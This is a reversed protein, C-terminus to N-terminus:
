AIGDILDGAARQAIGISDVGGYFFGWCIADLIQAKTMGMAQSLLVGERIGDAFGRAVNMNLLAYAMMEKPLADRIAHEYRNRYAKLMGPRHRALFSVYDPVMGLKKEYWEVIRRVDEDSAEQNSFDAGSVFFDPDFGWEVPWREVPEPEVWQRLQPSAGSYVWRMGFPSGHIFGVALLDLLEAKTMGGERCLKVEYAIGEEYGMLVYNHLMAAGHLLPHDTEEASTTHRVGARYRKMVDPRFELWFELAPMSEGKIRNYYDRFVDIEEQTITDFSSFDLGDQSPDTSRHTM